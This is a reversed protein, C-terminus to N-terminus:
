HFSIVKHGRLVNGEDKGGFDDSGKETTEYIEEGMEELVQRSHEKAEDSTRPNTLTAESTLTM